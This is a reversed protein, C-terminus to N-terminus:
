IPTSYRLVIDLVRNHDPTVKGSDYHTVAYVMGPTYGDRAAITVPETSFPLTMRYVGARDTFPTQNTSTTVESEL